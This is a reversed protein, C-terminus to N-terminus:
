PCKKKCRLLKQLGDWLNDASRENRTDLLIDYGKCGANQNMRQVRNSKHM